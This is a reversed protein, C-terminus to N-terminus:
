KEWLVLPAEIRSHFLESFCKMFFLELVTSKLRIMMSKERSFKLLWTSLLEQTPNSCKTKPTNPPLDLILLKSIKKNSCSTPRNSIVIFLTPDKWPWWPKSYNISFISLKQKISNKTNPSTNRWIEKIVFSWFSISILNPRKLMLSTSSITMNVTISSISKEKLSQSKITQISFFLVKLTIGHSSKSLLKPPTMPMASISMHSHDKASFLTPSIFIELEKTKWRRPILIIYNLNIYSKIYVM